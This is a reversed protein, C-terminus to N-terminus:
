RASSRFLTTLAGGMRVQNSKALLCYQSMVSLTAKAKEDTQRTFANNKLATERLARLRRPCVLQVEGNSFAEIGETLRETGHVKSAGWIQEPFYYGPFSEEKFAFVKQQWRAMGVIGIARQNIQILQVSFLSFVAIVLAPFLAMVAKFVQQANVRNTFVSLLALMFLLIYIAVVVLYKVWPKEHSFYINGQVLFALPVVSFLAVM